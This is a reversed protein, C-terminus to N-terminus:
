REVERRAHRWASLVGLVLGVVLLALTWLLGGGQQRDLWRGALAGVVAPVSVMWGIAGILSLGEWFGAMRGQGARAAQRRVESVFREERSAESM